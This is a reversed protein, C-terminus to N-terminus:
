CEEYRTKEEKNYEMLLQLNAFGTYSTNSMKVLYIYHLLIKPDTQQSYRPASFAHHIILHELWVFHNSSLSVYVMIVGPQLKVRRNFVRQLKSPINQLIRRVTWVKEKEIIM